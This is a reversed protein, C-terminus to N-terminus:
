KDYLVKWYEHGYKNIVYELIEKMKDKDYVIVDPHQKQKEIAKKDKRGKVEIVGENTIFDPCYIHEENEYIYKRKEKCREVFLNHEYYYVLFALEWTSDCYFGNYHGKKGNGHRKNYKWNTNGKMSKSIRKRRDIEKEDDICKGIHKYLKSAKSISEKTHQACGINWGDSLYIELNIKPIHKEINNKNITVYGKTKGGNGGKIYDLNLKNENKACRLEHQILANKNKLEKNCFRCFYHGIENYSNM